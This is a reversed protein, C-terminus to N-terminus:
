PEDDEDEATEGAQQEGEVEYKVSPEQPGGHEVEEPHPVVLLRAFIAAPSVLPHASPRPPLVHDVIKGKGNIDQWFHLQIRRLIIQEARNRM